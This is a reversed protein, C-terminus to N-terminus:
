DDSMEERLKDFAYRLRSKVTERGAGTLAAIEELSLGGEQQLLFAEKQHAPLRNLAQLFRKVEQQGEVITEPQWARGAAPEQMDDDLSVGGDGHSRWHDILKNHAIHFLYASFRSSAQYSSRNRALSLWTEQTLDAATAASGCSKLLYNYLAQKYRAYLQDFAAIEGRGFALMLEDDSRQATEAAPRYAQGDNRAMRSGSQDRTKGRLSDTENTPPKPQMHLPYRRHLWAGRQRNGTDVHLPFPLVAIM